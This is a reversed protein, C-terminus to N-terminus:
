KLNTWVVSNGKSDLVTPTGKVGYAVGLAKQKALIENLKKIEDASYKASKYKTSGNAIDILRQAKEKSNKASLIWNSMSNAEKHFPLNYLYVNLKIDKSLSPWMKEFKKCYHCEPDTFVYYENKGSGYSFAEKGKLKSMDLPIKIAEQINMDLVSATPVIYRGTSDVVIEYSNGRGDIGRVIYLDLNKGVLKNAVTKAGKSKFVELKDFDSNQMASLAAVSMALTLLQKKM